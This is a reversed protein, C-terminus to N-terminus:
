IKGDIIYMPPVSELYQVLRNKMSFTPLRANRDQHGQAAASAGAHAVGEAAAALEVSPEKVQAFWDIATGSPYGGELMTGPSANERKGAVKSPCVNAGSEAVMGTNVYAPVTASSCIKPLTGVHVECLYVSLMCDNSYVYCM